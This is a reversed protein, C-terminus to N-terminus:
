PNGPSSSWSRPRGLQESTGSRCHCTRRRLDEAAARGGLATVRSATGERPGHSVWVGLVKGEGVPGDDLGARGRQAVAKGGTGRVSRTREVEGLALGPRGGVGEPAHDSAKEAHRGRLLCGALRRLRDQQIHYTNFGLLGLGSGTSFSYQRSIADGCPSISM